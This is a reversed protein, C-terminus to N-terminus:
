IGEKAMLCQWCGKMRVLRLFAICYLTLLCICFLLLFLMAYESNIKNGMLSIADCLLKIAFANWIFTFM